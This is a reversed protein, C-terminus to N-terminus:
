LWLSENRQRSENKRKFLCLKPSIERRDQGSRAYEPDSLRRLTCKCVQGRFSLYLGFVSFLCVCSVRFASPLVLCIHPEPCQLVFCALPCHFPSFCVRCILGWVYVIGFFAAGQPEVMVPSRGTLQFTPNWLSAPGGGRQEQAAGFPTFLTQISLVSAYVCECVYACVSAHM